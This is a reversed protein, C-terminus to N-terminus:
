DDCGSGAIPQPIVPRQEWIEKRPDLFCKRSPERGIRSLSPLMMQCDSALELLNDHNAKVLQNPHFLYLSIDIYRM